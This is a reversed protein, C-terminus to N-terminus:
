AEKAHVMRFFLSVHRKLQDLCEHEREPQRDCIGILTLVPSVYLMALANPDEATIEGAAILARFIGAHYALVREVYRRSYLAALEPSRFQELTMMRRFRSITNDHLSYEFIQRVKEPSRCIPIEPPIAHPTMRRLCRKLSASQDMSGSVADTGRYPVLAGRRAYRDSRCSAAKCTFGQISFRFQRLSEDMTSKSCILVMSLRRTLFYMPLSSLAWIRFTSSQM